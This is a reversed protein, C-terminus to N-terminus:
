ARQRMKRTIYGAIKNKTRKEDTINFEKLVEKNAAFDTSFKNSYASLLEGSAKKIDATKIRGM